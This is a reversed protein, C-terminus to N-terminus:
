HGREKDLLAKGKNGVVQHYKGGFPGPDFIPGDRDCNGAGDYTNNYYLVEVDYGRYLREISFQPDSAALKIAEGTTVAMRVRLGLGPEDANLRDISAPTSTTQARM